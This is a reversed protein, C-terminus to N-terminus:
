GAASRTPLKDLTVDPSRGSGRLRLQGFLLEQPKSGIALQWIRRLDKHLRCSHEALFMRPLPRGTLVECLCAM